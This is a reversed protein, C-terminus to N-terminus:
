MPGSSSCWANLKSKRSAVQDASENRLTTSVASASDVMTPAGVVQTSDL